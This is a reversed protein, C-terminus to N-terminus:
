LVPRLQIKSVHTFISCKSTFYVPNIAKYYQTRNQNAIETHYISTTLYGWLYNLASAKNLKSLTGYIMSSIGFSMHNSELYVVLTQCDSTFFGFLWFLIINTGVTQVLTAQATGRSSFQSRGAKPTDPFLFKPALTGIEGISESPSSYLFTYLYPSAVLPM